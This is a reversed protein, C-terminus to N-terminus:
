AVKRPTWFDQALENSLVYAYPLYGYGADGWLTNWSNRIIFTKASDSYGVLVIAHGGLLKEKTTDPMPIQGGTEDMFSDYVSIGFPVGYGEALAAKIDAEVQNVSLCVIATDIASAAPPPTAFQAPDYPWVSERLAGLKMAVHAGNTLTAGSDQDLPYGGDVREQWYFALESPEVGGSTLAEVMAMHQLAGTWAFATCAGLDKQDRIPPMGVRLDTSSPLAVLNPFYDWGFVDRNARPIGAGIWGGYFGDRLHHKSM